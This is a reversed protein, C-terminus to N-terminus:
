AVLASDRARTLGADWRVVRGRRVNGTLCSGAGSGDFNCDTRAWIRGANWTDPVTFDRSSGPAAEWGNEVNPHTTGGGTFIAPWITYSCKNAVTFKRDGAAVLAASALLAVSLRVSISSAPASM